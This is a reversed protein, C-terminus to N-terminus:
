RGPRRWSIFVFECKMGGRSAGKAVEPRKETDTDMKLGLSDEEM